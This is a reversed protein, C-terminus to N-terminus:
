RQAWLLRGTAARLPTEVARTTITPRLVSYLMVINPIILSTNKEESRWIFLVIPLFSDGVSSSLFIIAFFRLPRKRLFFRPLFLARDAFRGSLRLYFKLHLTLLSLPLFM